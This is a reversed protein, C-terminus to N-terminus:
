AEDGSENVAFRIGSPAAGLLKARLLPAECRADERLSCAILRQGRSMVDAALQAGFDDDINIVAWDLGPWEFLRAKAAAYAEMTCHYELHDRSLNTFVAVDFEVGAVRGQDIGISSVEMSVAHAGCGALEALTRHLSIADPTTNVLPELRGPFGQGLTGIVGCPTELAELAQAIWQSTTTKGNTGTVGVTWLNKSPRGYLEDDVCGAMERLK